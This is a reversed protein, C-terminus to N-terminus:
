YKKVTVKIDLDLPVVEDNHRCTGFNNDSTLNWAGEGTKIMVATEKQCCLRFGQGICLDKFTTYRKTPYSFSKM